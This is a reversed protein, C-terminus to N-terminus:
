ATEKKTLFDLVLSYRKEKMLGEIVAFDVNLYDHVIRNRLGIVAAWESSQDKPLINNETAATIVDYASVPVTQNNAKLLHRAKGIANEIIVQLSHLVGQQELESLSGNELRTAASKLLRRHKEAQTATEQLYLELRM